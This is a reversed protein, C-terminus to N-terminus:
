PKQKMYSSTTFKLFTVLLNLDCDFHAYMKALINIVDSLATNNKLNLHDMIPLATGCNLAISLGAANLLSRKVLTVYMMM